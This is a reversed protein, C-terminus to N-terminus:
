TVERAQQRVTWEMRSRWDGPTSVPESINNRLRKGNKNREWQDCAAMFSLHTTKGATQGATSSAEGAEVMDMDREVPPEGSM